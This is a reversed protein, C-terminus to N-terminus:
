IELPYLIPLVWCINLACVEYYVRIKKLVNLLVEEINKKVKLIIAALLGGNNELALEIGFKEIQELSM